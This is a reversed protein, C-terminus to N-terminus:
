NVEEELSLAALTHQGRVMRAVPFRQRHERTGMELTVLFLQLKMM